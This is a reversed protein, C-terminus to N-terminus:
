GQNPQKECKRNQEEFLRILYGCYKKVIDVEESKSIKFNLNPKHSRNVYKPLLAAVSLQLFVGTEQVSM